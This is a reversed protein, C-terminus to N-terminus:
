SAFSVGPIQCRLLGYLLATGCGWRSGGGM